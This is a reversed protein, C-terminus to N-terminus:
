YKIGNMGGYKETIVSIEELARNVFSQDSNFEFILENSFENQESFVGKIRVHGLKDYSMTFELNGEYSIFTVVGHINENAIKLRQAFEYLEGTSTYFREIVRFNRSKIELTVQSDYGGWHCTENPFGFVENYTFKIYDAEGQITFTM